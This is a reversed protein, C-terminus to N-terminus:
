QSIYTHFVYDYENNLEWFLTYMKRVTETELKQAFVRFFCVSGSVQVFIAFFMDLAWNNLALLM